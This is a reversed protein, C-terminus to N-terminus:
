RRRRNSKEDSPEDAATPPANAIVIPPKGNKRVGVPNNLVLFSADPASARAADAEAGSDGVYVPRASGRCGPRSFGIVIRLAM